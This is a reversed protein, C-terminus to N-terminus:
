TETHDRLPKPADDVANNLNQMVHASPIFWPRLCLLHKNNQNQQNLYRKKYGPM